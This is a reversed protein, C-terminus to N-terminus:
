VTKDRNINIEGRLKSEVTNIPLDHEESIKKLDDYEITFRHREDEIIKVRVLGFSTRIRKIRRKLTQRFIHSIRVGLTTTYRFLVRVIESEKDLPAIVAVEIGIRSKRGYYPTLYIDYGGVKRIEEILREYIIPRADDINTKIVSVLSSVDTKTEGIIIRLINPHDTADRIGAGLGSKRYQFPTGYPYPQSLTAIIAAGTPTILEGNLKLPVIQFGKLV